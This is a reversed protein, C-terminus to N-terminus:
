STPVAEILITPSQVGGEGKQLVLFRAVGAAIAAKGTKEDSENLQTHVGAKDSFAWGVRVGQSLTADRPVGARTQMAAEVAANEATAAGLGCAHMKVPVGGLPRTQEGVFLFQFGSAEIKLRGAANQFSAALPALLADPLPSWGAADAAAPVGARDSAPALCLKDFAAVLEAAPTAQASAAAPAAVLALAPLLHALRLTARM